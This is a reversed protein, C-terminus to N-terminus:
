ASKALFAVFLTGPGAYPGWGGGFALSLSLKKPLTKSLREALSKAEDPTTTYVVAAAEITNNHTFEVLREIGKSRSRVQGAPHLEGDRVSVVPKVNLVAGILAKAKGIRGGAALYRLTDFFGLLRVEASARKIEGSLERM